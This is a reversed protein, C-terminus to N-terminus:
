RATPTWSCAPLLVHIGKYLLGDCSYFTSLGATLAFTSTTYVVTFVKAGGALALVGAV